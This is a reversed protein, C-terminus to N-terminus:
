SDASEDDSSRGILEPEAPGAETPQLDEDSVEAAGAIQFVPTSAHPTIVTVDEPLDLDGVTITGGTDLDNLSVQLAEPISLALCDVTVRRVGQVLNGGAVVGPAIGRGVVSVEVQVRQTADVRMLDIHTVHTSFVDWQLDQVIVSETKGNMSFNLVRTGENLLTRIREQPVSFAVPDTGGGYLSGPCLGQKRLRRSEASGTKTREQVEFAAAQVM